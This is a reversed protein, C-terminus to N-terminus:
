IDFLKMAEEEENKFKFFDNSLFSDIKAKYSDLDKLLEDFNVAEKVYLNDENEKM